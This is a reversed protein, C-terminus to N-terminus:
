SSLIFPALLREGNIISTCAVIISFGKQKAMFRLAAIETYTVGGIYYVVITKGRVTNVAAAAAGGKVSRGQTEFTDGPIRNMVDELGSWGNRQIAQEALRHM